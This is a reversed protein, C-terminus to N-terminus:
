ATPLAHRVVARFPELLAQERPDLRDSRHAGSHNRTRSRGMAAPVVTPVYRGRRMQDTDPCCFVAQDRALHRHVVCGPVVTTSENYIASLRVWTRRLLVGPACIMAFMLETYEANRTNKQPLCMYARLVILHRRDQLHEVQEIRAATGGGDIGHANLALIRSPCPRSTSAHFGILGRRIGIYLREEGIRPRSLLRFIPHGARGLGRAVVPPDFGAGRKDDAVWRYDRLQVGAVAPAIQRTDRQHFRLTSGIAARGGFLAVVQQILYMWWMRDIRQHTPMPADFIPHMPHEIDDKVLIGTANPRAIRRLMHADHPM